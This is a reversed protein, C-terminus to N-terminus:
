SHIGCETKRSDPWRGARRSQGSRIPVTTPACGISSYVRLSLPHVPLRHETVYDDVRQDSWTAIPNVKVLQRAEDFSAIPARAREPTESRRLGSMWARRGALAHHLPEVKRVHCCQDSGCPWETATARPRIVRLNLDYRQHVLEVYGLTEPFHFGTDLFVVEIAPDIQAALDILVCDQFSATLVLGDGFAAVAWAVIVEAEATELRASCAAVEQRGLLESDTRASIAGAEPDEDLVAACSPARCSPLTTRTWPVAATHAVRRPALKSRDPLM